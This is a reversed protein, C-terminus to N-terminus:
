RGRGSRVRFSHALPRPRRPTYAGVTGNMIKAHKRLWRELYKRDTKRTVLPMVARLTERVYGHVPLDVKTRRGIMAPDTDILAPTVDQPLFQSYPFDTALLILLDADYM